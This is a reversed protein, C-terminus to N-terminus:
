KTPPPRSPLIFNKKRRPIAHQALSPPPNNTTDLYNHLSVSNFLRQNDRRRPGLQKLQKQIETPTKPSIPDKKPKLNCCANNDKNQKDKGASIKYVKAKLKQSGGKGNVKRTQDDYTPGIIPFHAQLIERSIADHGFRPGKIPGFAGQRTSILIGNTAMATHSCAM